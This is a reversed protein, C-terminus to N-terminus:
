DRLGFLPTQTVPGYRVSPRQKEPGGEKIWRKELRGDDELRKLWKRAVASTVGLEVKIEDLSKPAPTTMETVLEAVADLLRKAPTTLSAALLTSAANSAPQYLVPQPQKNLVGNEVLRKLWKRALPKSVKFVSEIEDLSKPDPTTMEIVLEAFRDLLKEAPTTPSAASRTPAHNATPNYRVPEPRKGLVGRKVLENLWRQAQARPIDLDGKIEDLSKPAPATMETLLEAVTDLLKAAPTPPQLVKWFEEPTQPDPWLRAGKRMLAQLAENSDPRVYVPVLKLKDLQEVAGAWTGGKGHDSSVVLAADSLAYILKNRQMAHGVNFGAAPDYPSILVLRENMLYDRHDRQLAMRQLDNSLVGAVRGGEDLAGRMAAQDIGRAGGSVLTWEASAALKGIELADNRLKDNVRRSGVVALGGLGLLRPEGCGYLIPPAADELRKKLRQPYGDDARSLVWIAHRQWREVAQALQFGRALLRKLRDAEVPLGDDNLIDPADPSLLDSPERLFEALKTYEGTGLVHAAPIRRGIILPATLLLIARTNDSLETIM